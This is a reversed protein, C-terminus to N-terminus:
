LATDFKFMCHNWQLMLIDTATIKKWGLFKKDEVLRAAGPIQHTRCLVACVSVTLGVALTLWQSIPTQQRGFLSLLKEETSDSSMRPVLVYCDIYLFISICIHM